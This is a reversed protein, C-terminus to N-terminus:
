QGGAPDFAIETAPVAAPVFSLAGTPTRTMAAPTLRECGDIGLPASTTTGDPAIRTLVDDEPLWVTSDAGTAFAGVGFERAVTTTAGAADVQLLGQGARLWARGDPGLALDRTLGAGPAPVTRYSGDAAAVGVQAEQGARYISIWAGGHPGAVLGTIDSGLPVRAM